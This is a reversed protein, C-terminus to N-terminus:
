HFRTSDPSSWGTHVSFDVVNKIFLLIKNSGFQDCFWGKEWDIGSRYLRLNFIMKRRATIFFEQPMKLIKGFSRLRQAQKSKGARIKNEM